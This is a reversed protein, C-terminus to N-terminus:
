IITLVDNDTDVCNWTTGNFIQICDHDTNYVVMGEQWNNVAALNLDSLRPLYLAQNDSELELISRADITAPNTGVKVQAQASTVALVGFLCALGVIWVFKRKTKTEINMIKFNNQKMQLAFFFLLKLFSHTTKIINTM